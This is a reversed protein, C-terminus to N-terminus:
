YGHIFQDCLQTTVKNVHQQTVGTCLVQWCQLHILDAEKIHLSVEGM